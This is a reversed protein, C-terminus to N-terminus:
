SRITRGPRTTESCRRSRRTSTPQIPSKACGISRIAIAESAPRGSRRSPPQTLPDRRWGSGRRRDRGDWCLRPWAAGVRVTAESAVPETFLLWAFLVGILLLLVLVYGEVQLATLGTISAATSPVLAILGLVGYTVVAIWGARGLLAIVGTPEHIGRIAILAAGVGVIGVIGFSLRWLLSETSILAALSALGPLVFYLSVLFSLQRRGPDGTLEAHRFQVVVWWFGLLTFCLGSAAAYFTDIM